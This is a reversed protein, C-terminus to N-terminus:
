QGRWHDSPHLGVDSLERNKTVLFYGCYSHWKLQFQLHHEKLTSCENYIRVFAEELHKTLFLLTGTTLSECFLKLSDSVLSPQKASNAFCKLTVERCKLTMIHMAINRKEGKNLVVQKRTKAPEKSQTKQKTPLLEMEKVSEEHDSDSGDFVDVRLQWSM